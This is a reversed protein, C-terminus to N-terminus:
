LALKNHSSITVDDTRLNGGQQLSNVEITVFKFPLVLLKTACCCSCYTSLLHSRNADTENRDTRQQFSAIHPGLRLSSEMNTINNNMCYVFLIISCRSYALCANNSGQPFLLLHNEHLQCGLVIFLNNNIDAYVPRSM